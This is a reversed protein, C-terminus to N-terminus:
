LISKAVELHRQVVIVDREASTAAIAAILHDINDKPDVKIRSCIEDIEREEKAKQEYRKM